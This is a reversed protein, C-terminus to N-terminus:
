GHTKAKTLSRHHVASRIRRFKGDALDYFAFSGIALRDGAALPGSIFDPADAIAVFESRLEAAILRDSAIMDVVEITRATTARTAAYFDLIAQRGCLTRRDAIMLTVDDTYYSGYADADGRNFADIYARFDREWRM